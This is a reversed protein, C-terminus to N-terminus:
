GAVIRRITPLLDTGLSKKLVVAVAGAAEAARRYAAEGHVTVVIIKADPREAKTRRIAELGGLRPMAIDMLVVQPRLERALRVAEEGDAAEGVIAARPESELVKRLLRRFGADDDAVLLSFQRELLGRGV